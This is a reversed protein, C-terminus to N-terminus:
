LTHFSPSGGIIGARRWTRHHGMEKGPLRLVFVVAYPCNPVLACTGMLVVCGDSELLPGSM